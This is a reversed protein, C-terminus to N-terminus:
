LYKKNYFINIFNLIKFKFLFFKYTYLNKKNLNLIKNFINKNKKIRIKFDINLLNYKKNIFFIKFYKKNIFFITLFFILYFIYILVISINLKLLKKKFFPFINMIIFFFHYLNIDNKKIYINKM